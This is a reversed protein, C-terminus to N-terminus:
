PSHCTWALLGDNGINTQCGLCWRLCRERWCAFVRLCIRYCPFRSLLAPQCVWELRVGLELFPSLVNIIFERPVFPRECFRINTMLSCACIGSARMKSVDDSRKGQFPGM